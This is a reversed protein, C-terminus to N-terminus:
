FRLNKPCHLIQNVFVKTLCPIKPNGNENCSAESVIREISYFNAEEVQVQILLTAQDHEFLFTLQDLDLRPREYDIGVSPALQLEPNAEGRIPNIYQERYNELSQWYLM